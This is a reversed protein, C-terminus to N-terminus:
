HPVRYASRWQGPTLGEYAKFKRVFSATDIYGVQTVIDKIPIDTEALLRKAKDFRMLTVYQSFTCGTEQKFFRSLNSLSLHFENAIQELSLDYSFVHDAVFGILEERMRSTRTERVENYQTCFDDILQTAARYFEDASRFACLAHLQQPNYQPQLTQITRLMNNVVDYCMCQVFLLSETRSIENFIKELTKRAMQADGQKLSQNLLACDLTPLSLHQPVHEIQDYCAFPVGAGPLYERVVALAEMCSDHLRMPDDCLSGAGAMMRVPGPAQAQDLIVRAIAERPDDGPQKEPPCAVMIALLGDVEEELAYAQGGGPLPAHFLGRLHELYQEGSSADDGQAYVLLAFTRQRSVDMGACRLQFEMEARSAFKGLLLKSLCAEMVMPRQRALQQDLESNRQATFDMHRQILDFENSFRAQGDGVGIGGLLRRLPSYSRRTMLMAGIVSLGLIVLAAACFVKWLSGLRNYFVNRDSVLSLSLSNNQLVSRMVVYRGSEQDLPIIGTGLVRSVDPAAGIFGNVACRMAEYYINSFVY